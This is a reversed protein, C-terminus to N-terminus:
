PYEHVGKMFMRLRTYGFVFFFCVGPKSFIPFYLFPLLSNYKGSKQSFRADNQLFTSFIVFKRAAFLENTQSLTELFGHFIM